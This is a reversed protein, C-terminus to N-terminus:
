GRMLVRSSAGDTQATAPDLVGAGAVSEYLRNAADEDFLDISFDDLQIADTGADYNVIFAPRIYRVNAHLTRPATPDLSPTFAGDVGVASWGRVWATQEYWTGLTLGAQPLLNGGVWHAGSFTNAGNVNVLTTGDAAVGVFGFYIGAAPGGASAARRYRLRLRYLGEPDFPINDPWEAALYRDAQLVRGGAQGDLPYIVQGLNVRVLYRELVNRADFTERFVTRGLAPRDTAGGITLPPVDSFLARSLLRGVAQIPPHYPGPDWGTRVHRARYWVRVGARPALDFFVAPGNHPFTYVGLSTWAGPAGSVNPARELEVNFDANFPVLRVACGYFRENESQEFITGSEAM